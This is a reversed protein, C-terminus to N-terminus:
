SRMIKFLMGKLFKNKIDYLLHAEFSNKKMLKGFYSRAYQQGYLKFRLDNNNIGTIIQYAALEGQAFAYRLGEGSFPDAGIADGVLLVNPASIKTEPNYIHVPLGKCHVTNSDIGDKELIDKFIRGLNLKRKRKFFRFDSCQIFYSILISTRNSISSM